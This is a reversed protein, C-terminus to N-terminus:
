NTINIEIRRNLRQGELTANSAIPSTEGKSSITLKSPDIGQSVFYEMVSKAREKGIWQNAEAEGNSDTHGIIEVQKDPHKALYNKLEQAYANLTNDPQFTKSGFGAYLIKSAIGKDISKMREESMTQYEYAFGKAYQDNASFKFDGQKTQMVVRDLNIGFDKLVNQLSENRSGAISGNEDKSFFSTIVLEKRQNANLYDFFSQLPNSISDIITVTESNKAISFPLYTLPKKEVVKPPEVVPIPESVECLKKVSCEYYRVGFYLWTCLFVFAIVFHKM